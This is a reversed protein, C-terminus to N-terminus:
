VYYCIRRPNLTKTYGNVATVQIKQPRGYIDINGLNTFPLAIVENLVEEYFFAIAGQNILIKNLYPVDIFKPLKKFRFVNEALTMFQRNYMMLTKFSNIQGMKAKNAM